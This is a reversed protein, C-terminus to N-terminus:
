EVRAAATKMNQFAQRPYPPNKPDGFCHRVPGNYDVRSWDHTMM